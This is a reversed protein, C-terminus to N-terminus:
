TPVFISQARYSVSGSFQGTINGTYNIAYYSFYSPSSTRSTIATFGPPATTVSRSSTSCAHYITMNLGNSVIAPSTFNMVGDGDFNAALWNTAPTIKREFRIRFMEAWAASSGSSTVTISGSENGIATKTFGILYNSGLYFNTWSGDSVSSSFDSWITGFMFLLDGEQIGSPHNVSLTTGSSIVALGGSAIEFNPQYNKKIQSTSNLNWIGSLATYDLEGDNVPAPKFSNVTPSRLDNWKDIYNNTLFGGYRNVSM